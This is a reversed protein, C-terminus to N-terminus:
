TKVVQLEEAIFRPGNFTAICNKSGKKAFNKAQVARDRFERDTLPCDPDVICLGISVTTREEIEPYTLASLKARLEELFAIALSRSMSPVLILYEDGGQRYAFGHHYIHAELSQMFRPLLNRDVKTESHATNFQKFDDIDLFAITLPADRVECKARFYALDALFLAPAQLIHFKEDYQRSQFPVLSGLTAEIYQIPLYDKVRPLRLPEIAKFWPANVLADLTKIEEELKRALELHFTKETLSETYAARHRRYRLVIQKFIAAQDPSLRKGVETLPIPSDEWASLGRLSEDTHHLVAQIETSFPFNPFQSEIPNIVKQRFDPQFWRVANELLGKLLSLEAEDM